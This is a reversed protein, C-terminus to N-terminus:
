NLNGALNGATHAIPSWITMYHGTEQFMREGRLSYLSSGASPTPLIGNSNSSLKKSKHVTSWRLVQSSLDKVVMTLGKSSDDIHQVILRFPADLYIDTTKIRGILYYSINFQNELVVREMLGSSRMLQLENEMNNSRSATLANAILDESNQYGKKEGKVLILANASYRPTARRLYLLAGSIFLGLSIVFLPWYSFYKKILDKVSASDRKAAPEGFVENDIEEM